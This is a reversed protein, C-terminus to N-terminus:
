ARRRRVAILTLGFLGTAISAPEPIVVETGEISINDFTATNPNNYYDGAGFAFFAENSDFTYGNYSVTWNSSSSTSAGTAQFNGTTGSTPTWTFDINYWEQEKQNGSFNAVQSGDGIIVGGRNGFSDSMMQMGLYQGVNGSFFETDASTRIDGFIFVGGQARGLAGTTIYYDFSGTIPATVDFAVGGSNVIYSGPPQNANTDNDGTIQAAVGGGNGTATIYANNGGNVNEYTWGSPTATSGVSLSEFNESITAATALTASAGFALAALTTTLKLNM